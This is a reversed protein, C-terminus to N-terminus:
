FPQKGDLGKMFEFTFGSRSAHFLKWVRTGVQLGFGGADDGRIM